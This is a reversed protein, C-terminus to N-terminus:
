RSRLLRDLGDRMEQGPGVAVIGGNDLDAMAALHIDGDFYRGALEARDGGIFHPAFDVIAKRLEGILMGGREDEDIGAAQGLANGVIEGFAESTVGHGRMVPTERALQAESRFVFEFGSFDASEDGGGREFKSDIPSRSRTAM